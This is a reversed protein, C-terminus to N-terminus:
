SRHLSPLRAYLLEFKKKWASDVAGSNVAHRVQVDSTTARYFFRIWSSNPSNYQPLSGIFNDHDLGFFESSCRHLGALKQGLQEWYNKSRSKQEIFELLLFQHAGNKGLGLVNPIRIANQQHLLHLGKSEAEFM